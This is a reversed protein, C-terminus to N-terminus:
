RASAAGDIERGLADFVSAISDMFPGPTGFPSRGELDSRFV